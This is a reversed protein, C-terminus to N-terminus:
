HFYNSWDIDDLNWCKIGDLSIDYRISSIRANLPEKLMNGILKPFEDDVEFFSAKDIRVNFRSYERFHVPSYGSGVLLENFRVVLHPMETFHDKIILKVLTPLNTTDGINDTSVLFSVFGLRRDSSFELQEIGNVTHVREKNRTGKVEINWCEFCFDNNGGLPGTWSDLAKAPYLKCLYKLIILECIM